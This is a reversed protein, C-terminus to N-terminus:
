VSRNVSQANSNQAREYTRQRHCNACVVECKAIEKQITEMSYARRRMDSINAIKVQDDLHDFEMVWTPYKIGCDACPVDKAQEIFRRLLVSQEANRKRAKALYRARNAAYYEKHYLHLCERCFSHLYSKGKSNFEAESKALQCRSCIRMAM